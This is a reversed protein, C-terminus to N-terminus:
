FPKSEWVLQGDISVLHMSETYGAHRATKEAIDFAADLNEAKHADSNIVIPVNCRYLETLFFLSPYTANILNRAIGGTNCEVFTHADAIARATKKIENKYWGAEEDAFHLAANRIKVLDPHGVFDFTAYKVMQRVTDFYCETYKKGNGNFCTEIGNKVEELSGDVTFAKNKLSVALYHVSGIIYDANLKSYAEKSLDTFMPFYDAEFGTFIDLQTKYETKLRNIENVYADFNKVPLHWVAAYPYLSHASFGLSVIGKELATKVMTEPTDKGDCFTTHTHYNSKYTM